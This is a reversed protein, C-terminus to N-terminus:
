INDGLPYPIQLVRIGCCQEGPEFVAKVRLINGTFTEFGESTLGPVVVLWDITSVNILGQRRFNQKVLCESVPDSLLANITYM